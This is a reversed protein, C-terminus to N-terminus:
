AFRQNPAIAKFLEDLKVREQKTTDRDRVTVTQDQLTDYDITVCYPTGVEDARAYRKGISGSGDYEVAFHKKLLQAVERAKEALGDKKMLPFVGVQVPAIQPSLKLVITSGEDTKGANESYADLLITFFLRDLGFSPEIVHPVIKQKAVEDFVFLETGSHKAHQKLDFDTRYAIGVLEKWGWPYNYEVDWTEKSYHSLETPVHQRLRLNEGRVGLSRLFALTEGIWCAMWATGIVKKALADAITFSEGDAHTHESKGADKAEQQKATLVLIKENEFQKLLPCEDLKSGDVFFEIEMQSFERCRFVFNRPSIENRFAKGVQAIGFPLALRGSAQAAKFQTFILQATEPRLFATQQAAGAGVQTKFMLNFQQITQLAGKCKLCSLKHKQILEGLAEISLGDVSIKLEDEVLHDARFKSGCKGCEVLPDNFNATHGSAEWTKPHTIIAGDMGVIDGRSRVFHDWWASEINRKLQAGYGVYDFFGALSGYIEGSPLLLGRRSCLNVVKQAVDPAPKLTKNM